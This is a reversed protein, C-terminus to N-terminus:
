EKCDYHQRWAARSEQKRLAYDRDEFTHIPRHWNRSGGDHGLVGHWGASHKRNRLRNRAGGRHSHIWASGILLSEIKWAKEAHASASGIGDDRGRREWMRRALFHHVSRGSPANRM